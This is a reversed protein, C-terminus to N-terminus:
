ILGYIESFKGECLLQKIAVVKASFSCTNVYSTIQCPLFLLSFLDSSLGRVDVCFGLMCKTQMCDAPLLYVKLKRTLQKKM